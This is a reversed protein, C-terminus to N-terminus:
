IYLLNHILDKLITYNDDSYSFETRIMLNDVYIKVLSTDEVFKIHIKKGDDNDWYKSLYFKAKGYREYVINFKDYEDLDACITEISDQYGNKKHYESFRNNQNKNITEFLKM